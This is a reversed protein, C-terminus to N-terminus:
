SASVDREVNRTQETWGQDNRKEISDTGTMAEIRTSMRLRGTAYYVARELPMCRFLQM